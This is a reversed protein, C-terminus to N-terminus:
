MDFYKDTLLLVVCGRIKTKANVICVNKEFLDQTLFLTANHSIYSITNKQLKLWPFSLCSIENDTVNIKVTKFRDRAWGRIKKLYLVLDNSSEKWTYSRFAEVVEEASIGHLSYFQCKVLLVYMAGNLELGTNIKGIKGECGAFLNFCTQLNIATHYPHLSHCLTINHTTKGKRIQEIWSHSLSPYLPSLARPCMNRVTKSPVKASAYQHWWVLRYSMSYMAHM